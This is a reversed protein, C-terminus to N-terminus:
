YGYSKRRMRHYKFTSLYLHYKLSFNHGPIENYEPASLLLNYGYFVSWSGYDYGIKPALYYETANRNFYAIGELGFIGLHTGISLANFDPTDDFTRVATRYNAYFSGSFWPSFYSDYLKLEGGLCYSNMEYSNSVGMYILGDSDGNWFLASFTMRNNQKRLSDARREIDAETVQSFADVCRIVLICACLFSKM